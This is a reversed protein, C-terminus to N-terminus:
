VEVGEPEASHEENTGVSTVAPPRAGRSALVDRYISEVERIHGPYSQLGRTVAHVERPSPIEVRGEVLSTIHAALADDHGGPFLLGNGLPHERDAAPQVIWEPPGGLRSAIVFKGAHLMELLVLPSNEFWIHPLIGVDFEGSASILQLPDYGGGLAVEPFRSLRKRLEWSTGQARIYFQCRSRVAAPLREIARVLVEIGKNNRTTGLFALRLPTTATRPNWPRARYFPSRIARRHLQDFHPQGLLVHRGLERRLGMSHLTELVFRSPPTVLSAHNLADIGAVRRRGYDNLVVLHTRAALFKENTDWEARGIDPISKPDVKSFGHDILTDSASADDLTEYGAAAEADMAAADPSASWPPSPPGGKARSQKPSKWWQKMHAILQMALSPWFGGFLEYTGRQVSRLLRRRHPRPADLCNVCRRGGDYDTCVRLEEHLLDVQPCVYWHNHATVVVPRGSERIAKILDLGFGELSHIHVVDAKIQDLWGLVVRSSEPCSMEQPMNRFNSSAPSLNPSNYLHWCSVGRWEEAHKLWMSRRLSYDMGSRLYFVRHGSRALGAALDSANLNYGSGERVQLSLWAWGLIAINLPTSTQPWPAVGRGASGSAVGLHSGNDHHTSDPM